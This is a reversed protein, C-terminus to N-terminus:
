MDINDVESNHTRSRHKCVRWYDHTMLYLCELRTLCSRTAGFTHPLSFQRTKLSKWYDGYCPYPIFYPLHDCYIFNSYLIKRNRLPSRHSLWAWYSTCYSLHGSFTQNNTESKYRSYRFERDFAAMQTNKWLLISNNSVNYCLMIHINSEENFSVQRSCAFTMHLKNHLGNFWM